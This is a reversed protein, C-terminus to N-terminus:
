KGFTFRATLGIAAPEFNIERIINLEPKWDLSLNLPLNEFKYDLGIVGQAGFNKRGKESATGTASKAVDGFAIYGGGGYYWQLGPTNFPKHVEFLLGIAVPDSFSLLGELAAKETLFHKFSIANNVVAANNSLRVGLASKYQQAIVTNTILLLATILFVASYKKM